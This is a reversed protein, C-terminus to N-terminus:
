RQRWLKGSIALLKLAARKRAAKNEASVMMCVIAAILAHGMALGYGVIICWILTKM